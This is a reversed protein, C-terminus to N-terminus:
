RALGAPATLQSPRVPSASLPSSKTSAAAVLLNGPRDEDVCLAFPQDRALRRWKVRVKETRSTIHVLDVGDM